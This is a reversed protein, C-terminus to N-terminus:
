QPSGEKTAAFCLGEKVVLISTFCAAQIGGKAKQMMMELFIEAKFLTEEKVPFLNREPCFLVDGSSTCCQLSSLFSNDVLM